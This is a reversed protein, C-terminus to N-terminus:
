NENNQRSSRSLLSRRFTTVKRCSLVYCFVAMKMNAPTLIDSRLVVFQVELTSTFQFKAWKYKPCVHCMIGVGSPPDSFHLRQHFPLQSLFGCYWNAWRLDLMIHDPTSVRRSGEQYMGRGSIDVSGPGDRDMTNSYLEKRMSYTNNM